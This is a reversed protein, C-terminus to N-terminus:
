FGFGMSVRHTTGLEGMPVWAYDLRMRGAHVGFGASLGALTGEIDSANRLNYGARLGGALSEALPRFLELGLSVHPSDDVPVHFDLLGRTFPSIHWLAGAQIKLPLPDAAGGMRIAPGLNRVSVGADIPGEGLQTVHVAQLGVDAAFSTGRVDALESRIFKLAAGLLVPGAANAYAASFALDNPAFSGDPDGLANFGQIASQSFYTLAAGVAGRGERLPRAFALTGAYATELLANYGVSVESRAARGGGSPERLLSRAQPGDDGQLRALGAPNWFIAESDDAAAVFSTGLAQARAGAPLKLFAAGTTGAAGDSFPSDPLLGASAPGAAALLCSLLLARSVPKNGPRPYRM